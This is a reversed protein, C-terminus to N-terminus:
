TMTQALEDTMFAQRPKVAFLRDGPSHVWSAPWIGPLRSNRVMGGCSGISVPTLWRLNVHCSALPGGQSGLYVAPKDTNKPFALFKFHSFTLHRVAGL